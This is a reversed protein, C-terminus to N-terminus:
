PRHIAVLTIDDAQKDEMVFGYRTVNLDEDAKKANSVTEDKKTKKKDTIEEVKEAPKCYTTYLAFHDKLFSDLLKEIEIEDSVKVDPTKYMRFVREISALAIIAEDLTGNCNTFDFELIESTPNEEKDLIFKRKNMVAEVVRRYRDEGFQEKVDEITREIEEKGARPDFKKTEVTHTKVSYDKNRVLREAEDIGDSYMFLTDGHRLLTKEVRFGGKMQVLDTSVGGAAPTNALTIKRLRRKDSEFIDLKNDGANCTFLEGTERNYLSINITSFKGRTGLEYIFDNVESVFEVLNIGDRHYDWKHNYYYQRFKTSIVSVLLAAPTGHGSVDCKIFVYWHEDLKQYDFYDGSVDSDGKYFAYLNLKEDTHKVIPLKYKGEGDELPIFKQQVVKGDAELLEDEAAKGVTSSMKNVVEGLRGVEDRSKVKIEMKQLRMRERASKTLLNGVDQIHTELKKIPRVIIGALIWSGIIGAIIAIVALIIGSYIIGMIQASLEEQLNAVNVDLIILGHLAQTLKGNSDVQRYLVPRYFLYEEDTMNLSIGEFPPVSGSFESEILSCKETLAEREKTIVDTKTFTEPDDLFERNLKYIQDSYSEIQTKAYNDLLEMKDIVTYLNENLAKLEESESEPQDEYPYIVQSVGNVFQNSSDDYNQFKIDRDSDNTAWVYVMKKQDASTIEYDSDKNGLITIYKAEPLASSQSPLAVLNQIATNKTDEYKTNPMYNTVGTDISGLLVDVRNLLSDSLTQGQNILTQRVNIATIISVILIILVVTFGVIKIRLSKQKLKKNKVKLSPMTEGTTLSNVEKQIIVEEKTFGTFVFILAFIILLALAILIIAIVINIAIIYEYNKTLASYKPKYEYEPNFVVTGTKALSLIKNNTFYLGRDSHFVGIKYNGEDLATGIKIDTIKNDSTVKFDGNIRSLELDYHGNKNKVGDSDIYINNIIGEYTFGSGEIAAIYEGEKNKRASAAFIATQPKYKNIFILQTTSDSINGVEDIASITFRYVGNEKNVYKKTSTGSTGIVPKLKYNKETQKRYKERLTNLESQVRSKSMTIAHTKNVVLTQPIKGLYELEYTYGAAPTDEEGKRKNEDLSKFWSLNFENNRVFGYEDLVSQNIEPKAPPTIDHYYDIGVSKSSWNGAKDAILVKLNYIGDEEARNKFITTKPGTLLIKEPNAEPEVSDDLGWYYVYGKIGSVDDPYTITIEVDNKASRKGNRYSKPTLVPLGVSRDPGLMAIRGGGGARKQCIFYLCYTGDAKKLILPCPFLNNSSNQINSVDERVKKGDRTLIRKLSIEGNISEFWTLYLEDNFDFLKGRSARGKGESMNEPKSGTLGNRNIGSMMISTNSNGTEEWLLYNIGKYKFLTPRQDQVTSGTSYLIRPTEWTKGSDYTMTKYLQYHQLGASSVQAQFVVLDGGDCPISYPAFPNRIGEPMDMLKGETWTQGDWSDIYWLQFNQNEIIRVTKKETETEATVEASENEESSNEIDSKESVEASTNRDSTETIDEVEIRQYDVLSYFLRFKGDSTTYVKPGVVDKGTVIVKKFFTECKDRSTFITIGKDSPVAVIITGNKSMTVTYLDPVEGSYNFSGLLQRERYNNEDLYHRVMIQIKKNRSDVKQWFLYSDAGDNITVPFRGDSNNIQLPYDWHLIDDDAFVFAASFLIILIFLLNKLLKSFNWTM